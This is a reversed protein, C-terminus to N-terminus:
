VATYFDFNDHPNFFDVYKTFTIYGVCVCSSTPFVAGGLGPMTGYPSFGITHYVRKAPLGYTPLSTAPSVSPICDGIYDASTYATRDRVLKKVSTYHTFSSPKTFGDRLITNTTQYRHMRNYPRCLKFADSYSDVADLDDTGVMTCIINQTTPSSSPQGNTPTLAVATIRTKLGRVRYSRYMNGLHLYNNSYVANNNQFQEHNFTLGVGPGPQSMLISIGGTYGEVSQTGFAPQATTTGFPGLGNMIFTMIGCDADPSSTASRTLTFPM